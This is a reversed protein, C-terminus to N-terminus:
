GMGKNAIESSGVAGAGWEYMRLLHNFSVQQRMKKMLFTSSTWASWECVCECMFACLCEHWRLDMWEGPSGNACCVVVFHNRFNFLALVYTHVNYNRSIVITITVFCSIHWHITDLEHSENKRASKISRMCFRRIPFRLRIALIAPPPPLPPQLPLSLSFAFMFCWMLM